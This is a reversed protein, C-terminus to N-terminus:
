IEPPRPQTEGVRRVLVELDRGDWDGALLLTAGNDAVRHIRVQIEDFRPDNSRVALLDGARLPRYAM